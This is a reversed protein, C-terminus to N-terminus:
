DIGKALIISQGSPVIQDYEGHFILFRPDDPCYLGASRGDRALDHKEQVSGGLLRSEPLNPADHRIM